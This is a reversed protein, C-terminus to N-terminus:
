RRMSVWYAIRPQGQHTTERYRYDVRIKRQTQDAMQLLYDTLKIKAEDQPRILIFGGLNKDGEFRLNGIPNLFFYSQQPMALHYDVGVVPNNDRWLMGRGQRYDGAQM